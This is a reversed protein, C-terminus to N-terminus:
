CACLSVVLMNKGVVFAEILYVVDVHCSTVVVSVEMPEGFQGLFNLIHDPSSCHRSRSDNLNLCVYSMIHPSYVPDAFRVGRGRNKKVGRGARKLNCLSSM